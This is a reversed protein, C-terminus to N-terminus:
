RRIPDHWVREKSEWGPLSARSSSLVSHLFKKFRPLKMLRTALQLSHALIQYDVAGGPGLGDFCQRFYDEALQTHGGLSLEDNRYSEKQMFKTADVFEITKLTDRSGDSYDADRGM